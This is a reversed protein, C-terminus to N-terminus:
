VIFRTPNGQERYHTYLPETQTQKQTYLIFARASFDDKRKTIHHTCACLLRKENEYTIFARMNTHLSHMCIRLYYICAHEYTIFARMQAHSSHVCLAFMVDKQTRNSCVFLLTRDQSLVRGVDPMGEIPEPLASAFDKLSFLTEDAISEVDDARM